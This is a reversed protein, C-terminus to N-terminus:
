ALGLADAPWYERCGASRRSVASGSASTFPGCALWTTPAARWRRCLLATCPLRCRHRHCKCVSRLGQAAGPRSCRKAEPKLGEIARFSGARAKARVQCRVEESAAGRKPRAAAKLGASDWAYESAKWQPEASVAAGAM